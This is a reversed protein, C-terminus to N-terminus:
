RYKKSDPVLPDFTSVDIFSNIRQTETWHQSIRKGARWGLFLEVFLFAVQLANVVTNSPPNCKWSVFNEGETCINTSFSPSLLFASLFLTPFFTFLMFCLVHSTSETINGM